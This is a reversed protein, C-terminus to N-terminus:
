SIILFLHKLKLFDNGFRVVLQIAFYWPENFRECSRGIFLSLSFVLVLILKFLIKEAFTIFSSFFFCLYQGSLIDLLCLM